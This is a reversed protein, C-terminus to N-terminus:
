TPAAKVELHIHRSIFTSQTRAIDSPGISTLWWTKEERILHKKKTKKPEPALADAVSPNQKAPRMASVPWFAYM